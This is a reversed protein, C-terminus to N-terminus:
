EFSVSGSECNSQWTFCNFPNLPACNTLIKIENTEATQHQTTHITSSISNFALIKCVHSFAFFYLHLKFVTVKMLSTQNSQAVFLDAFVYVFSLECCFYRYGLFTGDASYLSKLYLKVSPDVCYFHTIGHAFLILIM